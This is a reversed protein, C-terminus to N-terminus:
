LELKRIRFGGDDGDEAFLISGSKSKYINYSPTRMKDEKSRYVLSKKFGSETLEAAVMANYGTARMTKPKDTALTSANNEHDNYFFFVRDGSAILKGSSYQNYRESGLQEKLLVGKSSISGDSNFQLAFLDGYELGSGTGIGSKYEVCIVADGSETLAAQSEGILDLTGKRVAKSQGSFSEPLDYYENAATSLDAENFRIYTVGDIDFTSKKSTFAVIIPSGDPHVKLHSRSLVFAGTPVRVTNKLSGDNAFQFIRYEGLTKPDSKITALLYSTGDEAVAVANRNFLDAGTKADIKTSYKPKFDKGIVNIQFKAAEKTYDSTAMSWAQTNGSNSSAAIVSGFDSKNNYLGKHFYKPEGIMAPSDSAKLSNPDIKEAFYVQKGEKMSYMMIGLKKDSTFSLRQDLNLGNHETDLSNAGLQKLENDLKFVTFDGKDKIQGLFYQNQNIEGFYSRIIKEDSDIVPGTTLKFDSQSFLTFPMAIALAFLLKKM